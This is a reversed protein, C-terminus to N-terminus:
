DVNNVFINFDQLIVTDAADTTGGWDATISFAVPSTTDIADGVELLECFPVVTTGNVILGNSVGTATAATDILKFTGNINIVTAGDDAIAGSSAILHGGFKVKITLTEDGDADGAVSLGANFTFCAGDQLDVVPVTLTGEDAALVLATEAATTGDHTPSPAMGGFTLRQAPLTSLVGATTCTVFNGNTTPLANPLTFEISGALTAPATISAGNTGGGSGELLELTGAATGAGLTLKNGNATDTWAFNTADTAMTSTASTYFIATDAPATAPLLLDYDAAVSAPVTLGIYNTGNTSDELLRFVAEHAAGGSLTIIGASIDAITTEVTGPNADGWQITSGDCLLLDDDANAFEVNTTIVSGHGWISDTTGLAVTTGGDNISYANGDTDFYIYGYGTAPTTYSALEKLKLAGEFRAPTGRVRSEASMIVGLGLVLSIILLYRIVKTM